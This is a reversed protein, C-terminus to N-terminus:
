LLLFYKIPANQQPAWQVFNILSSLPLTFRPLKGPDFVGNKSRYDSRQVCWLSMTHDVRTTPIPFNGASIIQGRFIWTSNWVLVVRMYQGIQHVRTAYTPVVTTCVLGAFVFSNGANRLGVRSLSQRRLTVVNRMDLLPQRVRTHFALSSVNQKWATIKQLRYLTPLVHM